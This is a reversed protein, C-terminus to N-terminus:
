LRPRQQVQRSPRETDRTGQSECLVDPALVVSIGSDLDVRVFIM